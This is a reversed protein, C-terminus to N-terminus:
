QYLGTGSCMLTTYKVTFVALPNRSWNQGLSFAQSFNQVLQIQVPASQNRCTSASSQKELTKFGFRCSQEPYKPTRLLLFLKRSRGESLKRVPSSSTVADHSCAPDSPLVTM